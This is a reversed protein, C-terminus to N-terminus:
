FQRLSPIVLILPPQLLQALEPSFLPADGALATQRVISDDASNMEDKVSRGSLEFTISTDPHRPQSEAFFTLAPTLHGLHDGFSEFQVGSCRIKPRIGGSPTDGTGYSVVGLM